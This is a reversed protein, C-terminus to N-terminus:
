RTSGREYRWRFGGATLLLVALMAFFPIDTEPTGGLDHGVIHSVTHLAAGVGVGLLAIALGDGRNPMSALLLVMGLGIQFAGIDQLFHQNYPEFTAMADFFSRPDVIAWVGLVAFGVGGVIAVVLPFRHRPTTSRRDLEHSAVPSAM